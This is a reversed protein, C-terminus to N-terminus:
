RGLGFPIAGQGFRYNLVLRASHERPELSFLDGAGDAAFFTNKLMTYRYELKLGWHDALITEAGLGVFWGDITRSVSEQETQTLNNEKVTVQTFGAPVYLLANPSALVGIRAGVDWANRIHIANNFQPM